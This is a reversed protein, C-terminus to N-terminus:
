FALRAGDSEAKLGPLSPKVGYGDLLSSKLDITIMTLAGSATDVATDSSLRNMGTLKPDRM